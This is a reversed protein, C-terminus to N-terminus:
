IRGASEFAVYRTMFGDYASKASYEGSTTSLWKHVDPIGPQLHFNKRPRAPPSCTMINLSSFPGLPGFYLTWLAIRFV